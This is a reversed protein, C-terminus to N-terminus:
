IGAVDSTGAQSHLLLMCEGSRGKLKETPGPPRLRFVTKGCTM